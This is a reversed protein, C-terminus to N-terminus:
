DIKKIKNSSIYLSNPEVDKVVVSGAAIISGDGITIGPLVISGAGIWCGSGIYIHGTKTKGARKEAYGIDHTVCYLQVNPAIFVNNGITISASDYGNTYVYLDQNIYCNDGIKLNATDINRPYSVFTDKGIEIGLLKLIPTSLKNPVKLNKLIKFRLKM